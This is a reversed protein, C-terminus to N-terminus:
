YERSSEGRLVQAVDEGRRTAHWANRKGAGASRKTVLDQKLLHSLLRSIQSQHAVGIGAAIEGNSAGPHDALFLLCQRARHGNPNSLTAPLPHPSPADRPSPFGVPHSGAKIERALREGLGVERSVARPSLYPATAMGMLPGLLDILPEAKAAALHAHIVGLVTAMVGDAALPPAQWTTSVPWSSLVFERFREVNRQRHKHAWAGAALSEVLWVRTLLPESDFFLLLSALAVRVGEQWTEAGEFAQRLLDMTRALGLDLVAGFCDEVGGAFQREFTRRSVRARAAVLGVSAGAYGREAVVEVMAAVIRERRTSHARQMGAVTVPSTGSEDPGTREGGSKRRRPPASDESGVATEGIRKVEKSYAGSVATILRDLLTSITQLVERLASARTPAIWDKEDNEVEQMVFGELVAYGALYRRLVTDLRVGRRAARRAQTLTAAPVPELSAGLREIGVLVYDLGAIGAGRLGAVYEPDESGTQDFWQNSVRTFIAEDIEARRARLRRVLAIQAERSTVGRGRMGRGPSGAGAEEAM